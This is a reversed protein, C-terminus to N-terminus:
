ILIRIMLSIIRGVYDTYSGVGIMMVTILKIWGDGEGSDAVANRHETSEDDHEEGCDTLPNDTM